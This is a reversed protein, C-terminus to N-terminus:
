QMSTSLNKQESNRLAEIISEGSGCVKEFYPDLEEKFLKRTKEAVNNRRFKYKEEELLKLLAPYNSNHACIEEHLDDFYANDQLSSRFSENDFLFAQLAKSELKKEERNNPNNVIRRLKWELKSSIWFPLCEALKIVSARQFINVEDIGSIYLYSLFKAGWTKHDIDDSLLLSSGLTNIEAKMKKVTSDMAEEALFKKLAVPDNRFRNYFRVISEIVEPQAYFKEFEQQQWAMRQQVLVSVATMQFNEGIYIEGKAANNWFNNSIQHALKVPQYVTINEEQKGVEMGQGYTSKLLLPVILLFLKNKFFM